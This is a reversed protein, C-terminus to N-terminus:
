KQLVSQVLLLIAVTGVPALMMMMVSTSNAIWWAVFLLANEPPAEMSRGVKALGHSLSWVIFYSGLGIALGVVAGLIIGVMGYPGGM